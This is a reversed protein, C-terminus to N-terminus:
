VLGNAFPISPGSGCAECDLASISHDWVCPKRRDTKTGVIDDTEIATITRHGVVNVIVIIVFIGDVRFLRTEVLSSASCSFTVSLCCRVTAVKVEDNNTSVLANDAALIMWCSALVSSYIKM